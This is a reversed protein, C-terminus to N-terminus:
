FHHMLRSQTVTKLFCSYFNPCPLSIQTHVPSVSILFNNDTKKPTNIKNQNRLLTDENKPRIHLFTQPHLTLVDTVWKWVTWPVLTQTHTHTSHISCVPCRTLWHETCLAWQRWRRDISASQRLSTSACCGPLHPPATSWFTTQVAGKKPMAAPTITSLTPMGALQPRCSREGSDWQPLMSALGSPRGWRELPEPRQEWAELSYDRLATGGSRVRKGEWQCCSAALSLVGNLEALLLGEELYYPGTSLAASAWPGAM